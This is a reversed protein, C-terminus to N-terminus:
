IKCPYYLFAKAARVSAKLANANCLKGLAVYDVPTLLARIMTGWVALEGESREAVAGEIFYKTYLKAYSQLIYCITCLKVIYLVNYM